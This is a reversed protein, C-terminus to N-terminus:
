RAVVRWESNWHGWAGGVARESCTLGRMEVQREGETAATVWGYTHGINEASQRIEGLEFQGVHLGELMYEAESRVARYGAWGRAMRM